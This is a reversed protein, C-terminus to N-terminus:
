IDIHGFFRYQINNDTWVPILTLIAHRTLRHVYYYHITSYILIFLGNHFCRFTRTSCQLIGNRNRPKSLTLVCHDKCIKTDMRISTYRACKAFYAFAVSISRNSWFSVSCFTQLRKQQVSLVHLAWRTFFSSTLMSIRDCYM